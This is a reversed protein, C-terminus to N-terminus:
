INNYQTTNYQITNYQITNYQVYRTQLFNSFEDKNDDVRLFSKWDAPIRTSTLVKRRQGSGRKERLSRKLSDDQYVYWLLDVRKATELHKLIYPTFVNSFYGEFTRATRPQLMQVIVAGDLIVADVAPQTAIQVSTNSLCKLLDAKQGGRLQGLKSLSPAM